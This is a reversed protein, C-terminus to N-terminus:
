RENEKCLAKYPGFCMDANELVIKAINPLLGDDFRSKKKKQDVLFDMTEKVEPLLSAPNEVYQHALIYVALQLSYKAKEALPKLNELELEQSKIVKQEGALKEQLDKNEESLKQVRLSLEEASYLEQLKRIFEDEHDDLASSADEVLADAIKRADSIKGMVMYMKLKRLQTLAQSSSVTCEEQKPGPKEAVDIKSWLDAGHEVDSQEMKDAFRYLQTFLSKAEDRKGQIAFLEIKRMLAHLEDPSRAEKSPEKRKLLAALETINKANQVDDM